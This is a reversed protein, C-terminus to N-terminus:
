FPCLEEETWSECGEARVGAPPAANWKLCVTDRESWHGCSWCARPLTSAKAEGAFRYNVVRTYRGDPQVAVAVPRLLDDTLELADDVTVPCPDPSRRAWWAEAKRRAFGDHEVCVWESAVRRYGAFYEVRLTPTRSEDRQHFAYTVDTVDFWTTPAEEMSLVPALSATPLISPREPPPFAHGCDPCERRGAALISRCRPCEKTPAEGTGNSERERSVRIEDVPGFHAVNGAFDLVLTNAKSPHKRFGRGVQQVYLGPSKTPRLLIVADIAPEDYGTTLIDVSTLVRVRGARFDRLRRAREAADLGGHVVATTEGRAAFAAAVHEAHAVGACFILLKNRGECLTLCEDVVGATVDDRDVAAALDGAVYEGGRTAVGATDLKALTAKSILPCLYGDVVLSRIDAEYAIDTFFARPGRHLLGAGMRFPTATLGIFRVGPNLKRLAVVVSRYQTDEDPPLLHAEDILVVDVADLVYPDRALSQIGAVTIPATTTKEGLQASYVGIPALPLVSAVAAVNQRILESRHALILARTPPHNGIAEAVITAMILSKGGGTPVVVLPSGDYRACYDFVADVAARQYPRLQPGPVTTGTGAVIASTMLVAATTM